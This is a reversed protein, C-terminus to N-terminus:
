QTPALARLSATLKKARRRLELREIGPQYLASGIGFGAAGVRLWGEFRTEDIGGVPILPMDPPLVARLSKMVSPSSGEAPFLKLADAGALIAGFAETPTAFGPICTLDCTKARRIITDDAHPMVILRGGADSVTDVQEPQLVTGAGILAAEGFARALKEISSFPAPSNLPVEIIEIGAEVLVTGIPEAEDASIGRLIAILPTRQLRTRLSAVSIGESLSELRM